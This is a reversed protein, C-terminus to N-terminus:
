SRHYEKSEIYDKLRNKYMKYNEGDARRLSRFMKLYSAVGLQYYALVARKCQDYDQNQELSLGTLVRNAKAILQASLYLSWDSKPVSNLQLSREFARFFGLVDDDNAM